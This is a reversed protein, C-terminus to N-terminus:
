MGCLASIRSWVYVAAVIWVVIAFTLLKSWLGKRVFIRAAVAFYGLLLHLPWYQALALYTHYHAGGRACPGIQPPTLWLASVLWVAGCALLLLLAGVIAGTAGQQAAQPTSDQERQAAESKTREIEDPHEIAFRLNIRCQSCNTASSPNETGCKPCTIAAM